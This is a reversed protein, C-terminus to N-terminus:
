ADTHWLFTSLDSGSLGPFIDIRPLFEATLVTPVSGCSYSKWSIRWEVDSSGVVYQAKQVRADGSGILICIYPCDSCQNFTQVM